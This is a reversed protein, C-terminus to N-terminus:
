SPSLQPFIESSIKCEKSHSLKQKLSRSDQSHTYWIQSGVLEVFSAIFNKSSFSLKQRTKSQKRTFIKSYPSDLHELEPIISFTPPYAIVFQHLPPYSVYFFLLLFSVSKM